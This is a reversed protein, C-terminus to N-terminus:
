HNKCCFDRIKLKKFRCFQAFKTYFSYWIFNNNKWIDKKWRLIKLNAFCWFTKLNSPTKKGFFHKWGDLYCGWCLEHHHFIGTTAPHRTILKAFLIRIEEWDVKLSHVRWGFIRSVSCFHSQIRSVQASWHSGTPRRRWVNQDLQFSFCKTGVTDM